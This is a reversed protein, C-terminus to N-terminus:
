EDDEKPAVAEKLIEPDCYWLRKQEPRFRLRWQGPVQRFLLPLLNAACPDVVCILFGPAIDARVEMARFDPSVMGAAEILMAASWATVAIRQLFLRRELPSPV